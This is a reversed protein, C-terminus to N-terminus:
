AHGVHAVRATRITRHKRSSFSFLGPPRCRPEPSSPGAELPQAARLSSRGPSGRVSGRRRSRDRRRSIWVARAWRLTLTDTPAPQRQMAGLTFGCARGTSAPREGLRASLQMEHDATSRPPDHRQCVSGTVISRCRRGGENGRHLRHQRQPARGLALQHPAGRAKERLPRTFTARAIGDGRCPGPERSM